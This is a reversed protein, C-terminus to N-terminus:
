RRPRFKRKKDKKLENDPKKEEVKKYSKKISGVNARAEKLKKMLSRDLDSPKYLEGKAHIYRSGDEMKVFYISESQLTKIWESPSEITRSYNLIDEVLKKRETHKRPTNSREQHMEKGQQFRKELSKFDATHKYSSSKIPKKDGSVYIYGHKGDGQIRKIRVDSGRLKLMANLQRYNSVPTKVAQIDSLIQNKLGVRGKEVSVATDVTLDHKKTMKKAIAVLQRKTLHNGKGKAFIKKKSKTDISTTSIHFHTAATNSHMYAIFPQNEYGNEKMFERILQRQFDMNEEVRERNSPHFSLIFHKYRTKCKHSGQNALRELTRAVARNDANPRIGSRMIEKANDKSIYQVTGACSNGSIEKAIM